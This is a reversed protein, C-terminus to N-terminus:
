INLDEVVEKLFKPFSIRKRHLYDRLIESHPPLLPARFVIPKDEETPKKFKKM